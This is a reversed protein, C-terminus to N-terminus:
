LPGPWLTLCTVSNLHGLGWVRDWAIDKKLGKLPYPGPLLIVLVSAPSLPLPTQPVSLLCLNTGVGSM